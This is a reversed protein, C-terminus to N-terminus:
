YKLICAETTIESLFLLNNTLKLDLTSPVRLQTELSKGFETELSEFIISPNLDVPPNL